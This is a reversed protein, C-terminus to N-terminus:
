KFVPNVESLDSGKEVMGKPQRGQFFTYGGGITMLAGALCMGAALSTGGSFPIGAASLGMIAIGVLVMLARALQKWEDPKGKGINIAHTKLKLIAKKDTPSDIVDAASVLFEELDKQDEDSLSSASELKHAADSIKQGAQRLPDNVETELLGQLLSSQKRLEGADREKKLREQEAEVPQSSVFQFGKWTKEIAALCNELGKLKKGRLFVLGSDVREYCSDLFEIVNADWYSAQYSTMMSSKMLAPVVAAINYKADKMPNFGNGGGFRARRAAGMEFTVVEETYNDKFKMCSYDKNTRDRELVTDKQPFRKCLDEPVQELNKGLVLKMIYNLQAQFIDKRTYGGCYQEGIWQAKAADEDLQTESYLFKDDGLRSRILGAQKALRSFLEANDRVLEDLLTFAQNEAPDSVVVDQGMSEAKLGIFANSFEQFSSFEQNKEEQAEDAKIIRALTQCTEQFITRVVNKFADNQFVRFESCRSAIGRLFPLIKLKLEDYTYNESLTDSPCDGDPFFANVLNLFTEKDEDHMQGFQKEAFFDRIGKSDPRSPYESVRSWSLIMERIKRVVSGKMYTTEEAFMGSMLDSFNVSAVEVKMGSIASDKAATLKKFAKEAAEQDAINKDPHVLLSLKRYAKTIADVSPNQDAIELILLANNATLEGIRNIRQIQPHPM